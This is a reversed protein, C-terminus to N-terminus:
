LFVCSSTMTAKGTETTFFVVLASYFEAVNRHPFCKQLTYTDYTSIFRKRVEYKTCLARVSNTITTCAHKSIQSTYVRQLRIRLDALGTQSLVKASIYTHVIGAPNYLWLCLLRRVLNIGRRLNHYAVPLYAGLRCSLVLGLGFWLLLM